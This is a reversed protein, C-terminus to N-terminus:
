VRVLRNDILRTRGIYCAIALLGIRRIKRLEELNEPDVVEIYDIKDVFPRLFNRIGSKLKLADRVGSKVLGEAFELSLNILPAKIRDMRNIYANRSSMALGDKERVTPLVRIEVPFNLDRAMRKVVMAQQYDKAGFYARAPLIANFLKSVVTTVGAFHLPRFKGCLGRALKRVRVETQFGDPYMEKVSPFFIVDTKEAALLKKDQSFTRPYNKLDEKPGFQAPNVFISVVVNKNEKRAERVLSLHGEHLAGMTPVFGTGGKRHAIAWKQMESIKTIIKM